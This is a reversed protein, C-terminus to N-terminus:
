FASPCLLKLWLSSYMGCRVCCGRLFLCRLMMQNLGGNLLFTLVFMARLKRFCTSVYKGIPLLNCLNELDTIYLQMLLTLDIIVLWLVRMILFLWGCSMLASFQLQLFLCAHWNCFLHMLLSMTYLAVILVPLVCFM